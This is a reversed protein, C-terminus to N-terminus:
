SCLCKKKCQVDINVMTSDAGCTNNATCMYKVAQAKTINTINLLNGESIEGSNVNRWIVTPDLIGTVNCYVKIDAGEVTIKNEAQKVIAVPATFIFEYLM